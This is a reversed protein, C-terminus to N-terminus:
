IGVITYIFATGKLNSKTQELNIQTYAQVM